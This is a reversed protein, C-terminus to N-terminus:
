AQEERAYVEVVWEPHQASMMVAYKRASAEFRFARSVGSFGPGCTLVVYTHMM